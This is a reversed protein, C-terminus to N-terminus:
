ASRTAPAKAEYEALLKWLEGADAALEAANRVAHYEVDNEIHRRRVVRQVSKSFKARIESLTPLQEASLKQDMATIQGSPWGSTMEVLDGIAM